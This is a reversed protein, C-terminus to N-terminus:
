SKKHEQYRVLGSPSVYVQRPNLKKLNPVSTRLFSFKKKEQRKAVNAEYHEAFTLDGKTMKHLRMIKRCGAEEIEIYDNAHLRMVLRAAPHPKFTHGPKYTEQAADFLSIMVEKWQGAKYRGHAKSGPKPMEYIEVAWNNRGEYAKYVKGSEKRRVPVVSAKTICQIARIGRQQIESQVGEVGVQECIKLLDERLVPSRISELDKKSEYKAAPKRWVVRVKKIPTQGNQKKEQELFEAMNYIGYATEKHLAGSRKRDSKHSVIINGVKEKVEKRFNEWPDINSKGNPRRFIQDIDGNWVEAEKATTAVKQIMSRTTMGIVIADVAHHRHDDRNKKQIDSDNDSLVSNLGWHRRLLATLRGTLVDIKGQPCINALYERALRGIYRTDNLHRATFDGGEGQEWKERATKTFRWRKSPPLNEARAHIEEWNYKGPNKEFAEHPTHEGKDRNAQRSCLVKNAYSDDLSYSFPLIHDIEVNGNFLDTPSILKGSYPCHRDTPSEGLEEWLRLLLRNARNQLQKSEELKKNLRDNRKENESQEKRLEEIKEKGAPLERGLEIAISEPLGYRLILENVVRRIQNLAIHVTPNSVGGYYKLDDCKDKEEFSGPIIHGGDQFAKGYYPLEELLNGEGRNYPSKFDKVKGDGDIEKIAESLQIRDNHMKNALLDAARLSLHAAGDELRANLCEGATAESLGYQGRLKNLVIEDEESGLLLAIFGNQKELDWGLWDKGIFTDKQMLAATSNGPLDKRKDSEFNFKVNGSVIEMKRLCKKMSAFTVKQSKELLGLIAEWAAKNERVLLIEGDSDTWSLENLQQLIRFRQFSPLARYAREEGNIFSCKGRKPPKIPRQYFIIHELKKVVEDILLAPHHKKQANCIKHFEDKLLERSPYFDYLKDDARRRARIPKGSEHRRYLFVGFSFAPDAALKETANKREEFQREKEAKKEDPSLSKFDKKSVPKGMLKMEGLLEVISQSVKGDRVEDSNDKRNSKFGRRQNLHFLARGIQQPKLKTGDLAQARLKLPDEKQLDLREQKDKPFFGNDTLCDLLQQRRLLYRDRRRRASRADRREAKLTTARNKVNRGDTFIRVGAAVLSVPKNDDVKLVSWGLSNTGVDFGFRHKTKM